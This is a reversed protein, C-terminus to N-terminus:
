MFMSEEKATLRAGPMSPEIFGTLKILGLTLVKLRATTGAYALVTVEFGFAHSM